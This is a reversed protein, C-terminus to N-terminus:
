WRQTLAAHSLLQVRHFLSYKLFYQGQKQATHHEGPDQGLVDVRLFHPAFGLHLLNRFGLGRAKAVRLTGSHYVPGHVAPVEGQGLLEEVVDHVKGSAPAPILVGQIAAGVVAAGM